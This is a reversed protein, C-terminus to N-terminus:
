NQINLIEKRIDKHSDLLSLLMSLTKPPALEGLEYRSFANHGGGFTTAAEKQTLGLAKRIRRIQNPELLHDVRSRFSQLDVRNSKLDEPELIAEDCGNCYMGSQAILLTHGKYSYETDKIEHNLTGEGCFPCFIGELKKM